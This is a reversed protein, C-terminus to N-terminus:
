KGKRRMIIIIIIIVGVIAIIIIITNTDIPWEDDDTFEVDEYREQTEAMWSYYEDRKREYENQWSLAIKTNAEYPNLLKFDGKDDYHMDRFTLTGNTCDYGVLKRNFIGFQDSLCLKIEKEQVLLKVLIREPM